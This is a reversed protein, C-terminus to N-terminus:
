KKLDLLLYEIRARIKPKDLTEMDQLMDELFKVTFDNGARAPAAAAPVQAAAAPAQLRAEIARLRADLGSIGEYIGRVFTEARNSQAGEPAAHVAPVPQAAPAPAPQPVPAPVLEPQEAPVDPTDDPLLQDAIVQEEEFGAANKLELYRRISYVLCFLAAAFGAAWAYFVPDMWASYFNFKPM